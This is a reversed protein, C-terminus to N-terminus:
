DPTQRARKLADLEQRLRILESEAQDLKAEAQRRAAKEQRREAEARKRGDAEEAPTMLLLSTHPDALRLVGDQVILELDLAPSYLRNSSVDQEVFTGDRWHFAVFPGDELYEQTPDFLYYEQVGIQGYIKPKTHQDERMTSRSSIEFVVQPAVGEEWLKYTRRIRKQVGRVFFIDPAVRKKPQGEVYYLFMNRSAYSQPDNLFHRDIAFYLDCMLNAHLETEAMPQGDSEPYEIQPLDLTTSM